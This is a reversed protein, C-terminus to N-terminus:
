DAMLAHNIREEVARLNTSLSPPHKVSQRLADGIWGVYALCASMWLAM